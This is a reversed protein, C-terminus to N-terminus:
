LFLERSVWLFSMYTTERLRIRLYSNAKRVNRALHENSILVRVRNRVIGQSRWDCCSINSEFRDLPMTVYRHPYLDISTLTNKNVM